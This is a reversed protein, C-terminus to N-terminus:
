RQYDRHPIKCPTIGDDTNLKCVCDDAHISFTAPQWGLLHFVCPISLTWEWCWEGRHAAVYRATRVTIQVVYRGKDSSQLTYRNWRSGVDCIGYSSGQPQPSSIRDSTRQRFYERLSTTPKAVEADFWERAAETMVDDNVVTQNGRQITNLLLSSLRAKEAEDLMSTASHSGRAYRGRVRGGDKSNSGDKGNDKTRNGFSTLWDSIDNKNAGFTGHGLLRLAFQLATPARGNTTRDYRQRKNQKRGYDM